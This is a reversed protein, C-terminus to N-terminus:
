SLCRAIVLTIDDEQKSGSFKQVTELLQNLLELAPLHRCKLITEILRADGFEEGADSQAETVGDSFLVLTDGPRLTEEALPCEWGKFLGVVTTTAKLREVEGGARVLVPPNHGCNAYRLRRSGDDYIAFFLTAYSSEATNEFFLQNVSRLLRSPDDLAV